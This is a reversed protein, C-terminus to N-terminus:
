DNKECKMENLLAKSPLNLTGQVRTLHSRGLNAIKLHKNTTCNRSMNFDACSQINKDKNTVIKNSFCYMSPGKLKESNFTVKGTLETESKKTITLILESSRETM